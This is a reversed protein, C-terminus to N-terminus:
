ARQAQKEVEFSPITTVDQTKHHPNFCFTGRRTDMHPLRGAFSPSRRIPWTPSVKLPHHKYQTLTSPLPLAMVQVVHTKLMFKRKEMIGSSGLSPPSYLGIEIIGLQLTM